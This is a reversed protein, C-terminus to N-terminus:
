RGCPVLAYVGHWYRNLFELGTVEVAIAGVAAGPAHALQGFDDGIGLGTFLDTVEPPDGAGASALFAM